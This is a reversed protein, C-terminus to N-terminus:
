EMEICIDDSGKRKIAFFVVLLEIIAAISAAV